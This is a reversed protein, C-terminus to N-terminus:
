TVKLTVKLERRFHNTQGKVKEYKNGYPADVRTLGSISQKPVSFHAHSVCVNSWELSIYM